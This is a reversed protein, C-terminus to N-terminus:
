SPYPQAPLVRNLQRAQGLWVLPPLCGVAGITGVQTHGIECRHVRNSIRRCHFAASPIGLSGEWVEYTAQLTSVLSRVVSIRINLPDLAIYPEPDEFTQGGWFLPPVRGLSAILIHQLLTHHHSCHLSSPILVRIDSHFAEFSELASFDYHRMAIKDIATSGDQAGGNREQDRLPPQFPPGAAGMFRAPPDTKSSAKV